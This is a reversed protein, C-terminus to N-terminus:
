KRYECDRGIEHINGDVGVVYIDRKRIFIAFYKRGNEDFAKKTPYLFLRVYGHIRGPTMETIALHIFDRLSMTVDMKWFMDTVSETDAEPDIKREAAHNTHHRIFDDSVQKQGSLM